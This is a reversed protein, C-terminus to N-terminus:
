ILFHSNWNIGACTTVTRCTTWICCIFHLFRTKTRYLLLHSINSYYFEYTMVICHYSFAYHFDGKSSTTVTLRNFIQSFGVFSVIHFKCYIELEMLAVARVAHIPSPIWLSFTFDVPIDCCFHTGCWLSISLACFTVKHVWSSAFIANHPFSVCNKRLSM